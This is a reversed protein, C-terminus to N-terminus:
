SVKADLQTYGCSSPTRRLCLMHLSTLSDPAGVRGGDVRCNSLGAVGSSSNSIAESNRISSNNNSYDNSTNNNGEEEEEEEEEDDDDDDNDDNDNSNNTSIKGDAYRNKRLHCSGSSVERDKISIKAHHHHYHPYSELYSNFPSPSICSSTNSNITNNIDTTPYATTTTAKNTTSTQSNPFDDEKTMRKRVNTQETHILGDCESSRILDNCLVQRGGSSNNIVDSSTSDDIDDNIDLLVENEEIKGSSTVVANNESNVGETSSTVGEDSSTM